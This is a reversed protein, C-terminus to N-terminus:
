FFCHINATELISILWYFFSFFFVTVSWASPTFSRLAPPLSVPRFSNPVSFNKCRVIHKIRVVQRWLLRAEHLRQLPPRHRQQVAPLRVRVQELLWGVAVFKAQINYRNNFLTQLHSYPFLDSIPINRRKLMRIRQFIVAILGFDLFVRATHRLSRRRVSNLFLNAIRNDADLVQFTQCCNVTCLILQFSYLLLVLEQCIIRSSSVHTRGQHYM